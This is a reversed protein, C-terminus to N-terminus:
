GITAGEVTQRNLLVISRDGQTPDLSLRNRGKVFTRLLSNVNHREHCAFLQSPLNCCLINGSWNYYPTYLSKAFFNFLCAPRTRATASSSSLYRTKQGCETGRVIDKPNVMVTYQIKTFELM